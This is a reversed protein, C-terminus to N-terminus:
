FKRLERVVRNIKEKDEPSLEQFSVGMGPPTRTVGPLNTHWEVRGKVRIPEKLVPLLFEIIIETGVELPSSTKIFLGGESINEAFENFLADPTRYDVRFVHPVRPFRRRDKDM